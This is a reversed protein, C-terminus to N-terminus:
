RPLGAKIFGEVFREGDKERLFPTTNGAYTASFSPNDKLYKEAEVHAEEMQGLQALSAALYVRAEGISSVKRLTEVAGKYDYAQYQAVGLQWLYWDPYNPNLRMAEKVHRIAEEPRGVDTYFEASLAILHADNPNAKLAEEFEAAAEDFKRGYLLFYALSCRAFGDRPDLGVAKYALDLAKQYSEKPKGPLWGFTWDNYHTWALVRYAGGYNPDLAIAKEALERAKANDSPTYRFFLEYARWYLGYADLSDPRQLSAKAMEARELKGALSAVLKRTV